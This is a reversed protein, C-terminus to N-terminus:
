TKVDSLQQCLKEILTEKEVLSFPPQVLPQTASTEKKFCFQSLKPIFAQLSERAARWRSYQEQSVQVQLAKVSEIKQELSKKYSDQTEIIKLAPAFVLKSMILYAVYFHIIQLVLTFDPLIM